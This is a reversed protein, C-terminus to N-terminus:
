FGAFRARRLAVRACGRLRGRPWGNRRPLDARVRDRGSSGCARGAGTSRAGRLVVRVVDMRHPAVRSAVEAEVDERLVVLTSVVPSRLRVNVPVWAEDWRRKVMRIDM